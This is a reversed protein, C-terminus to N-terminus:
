CQKEHRVPDVNPTHYGWCVYVVCEFACIARLVSVVWSM